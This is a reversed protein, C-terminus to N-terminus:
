CLWLWASALNLRSNVRAVFVCCISRGHAEVLAQEIPENSRGETDQVGNMHGLADVLLYHPPRVARQIHVDASAIRIVRHQQTASAGLAPLGTVNRHERKFM